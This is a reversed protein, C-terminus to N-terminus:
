SLRSKAKELAREADEVAQAADEAESAVHRADQRAADAEASAKEFNKELEAKARETEKARAAAKKLAAEAEAAAKRAERLAREADQVAARAAAQQAKREEAELRAAEKPDLKKKGPRPEPAKRQFPIVRTPETGKLGSRSGRPVLATLAEFGPPDIDNTLRGAPPAEPHSGYTALAELTTNIRRMADPTATYGAERLVDAAVKSLDALAQRRADLPGRLDAAKGALQATQAKKFKEGAALLQDFSKRHRWYVQNVAWASAPPKPLMKVQAAEDDRGSKKLKAVLANRAATFEGPPLKFLDDVDSAQSV